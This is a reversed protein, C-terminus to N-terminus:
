LFYYEHAFVLSYSVYGAKGTWQIVHQQRHQHRSYSDACQWLLVAEMNYYLLIFTVSSLIKIPQEANLMPDSLLSGARPPTVSCTHGGARLQNPPCTYQYVNQFGLSGISHSYIDYSLETCYINISPVFGKVGEWCRIYVTTMIHPPSTREM